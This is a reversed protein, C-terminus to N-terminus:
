LSGKLSKRWSVYAEVEAETMEGLPKTLDFGAAEAIVRAAERAGRAASLMSKFVKTEMCRECDGIFIHRPNTTSRVKSRRLGCAVKDDGTNPDFHTTM